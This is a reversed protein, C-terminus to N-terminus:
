THPLNHDARADVLTQKYHGTRELSGDAPLVFSPLTSSLQAVRNQATYDAAAFFFTRDRFIPGGVSASGQNLTDPIDVPSISNLTTPTVCTSVSYPCFNNTSFSKAQLSGGSRNMYLLDGHLDNTGSKTVMNLAAGSTWGYETSFSNSLVPVARVAGIPVTAIVTQRGWGEDNTGGDITFTTARRSGVGTIFYTTNVFLDGTGKGQRFAANMLPLTSVKRGLIPLEKIQTDELRLGLQADARVGEATGFVTVESKAGVVELKFKVKAQEGDRLQLNNVDPATFGAMSVSVKYVGNLPLAAMTVSGDPGTAAQRSSGTATNTVTVAAG